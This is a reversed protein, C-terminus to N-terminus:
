ISLKGFTNNLMFVDCPGQMGLWAVDVECCFEVYEFELRTAISDSKCAATSLNLLRKKIFRM